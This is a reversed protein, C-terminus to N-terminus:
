KNVKYCYKHPCMFIRGSYIMKGMVYNDTFVNVIARGSYKFGEDSTFNVDIIDGKKFM